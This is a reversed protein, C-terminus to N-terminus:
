HYPPVTSLGQVSGIANCLSSHVASLKLNFFFPWLAFNLSYRRGGRAALVTCRHRPFLASTPVPHHDNIGEM